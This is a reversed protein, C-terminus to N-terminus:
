LPEVNPIDTASVRVIPKRETEEGEAMNYRFFASEHAAVGEYVQFLLPDCRGIWEDLWPPPDKLAQACTALAWVRMKAMAPLDDYPVNGALQVCARDRLLKQEMDLIRCVVAAKLTESGLDFEIHLVRELGVIEQEQDSTEQKEANTKIETLM